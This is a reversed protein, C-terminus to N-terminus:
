PAPVKMSPCEGAAAARMWEAMPEELLDVRLPLTQHNAGEVPVFRAVASREAMRRTADPSLWRDGTGHVLLTCTRSAEVVEGADISRLDYGLRRSADDMAREVGEPTTQKRMAWNVLKGGLSKNAVRSWGRVGGRVGDAANAFPELAIIGALKDRLLPEAFLASTAGYSVGFLYVPAEISGASTLAGVLAAIDKGEAPGYGPPADDSAGHGRLDVSIGAYGREAFALAWPMMATAEGQWGHLYVVTGRTELPRADTRGRRAGMSFELGGGETPTTEIWFGRDAPPTEQWSLTVGTDLALSHRKIGIGDEMALLKRSPDRDGPVPVAIRDALSM